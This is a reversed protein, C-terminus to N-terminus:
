TASAPAILCPVEASGDLLAPARPQPLAHGLDDFEDGLYLPDRGRAELRARTRTGSNTGTGSSEWRNAGRRSPSPERENEAPSPRTRKQGPEDLCRPHESFNASAPRRPRIGQSPRIRPPQGREERSPPTRSPRHSLRFARPGHSRRPRTSRQGSGSGPLMLATVRLTRGPPDPAGFRLAGLLVAKLGEQDGARM